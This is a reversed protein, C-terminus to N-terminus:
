LASSNLPRRTSTRKTMSDVLASTQRKSCANEASPPAVHSILQIATSVRDHTPHATTRQRPSAMPVVGPVAATTRSPVSPQEHLVDSTGEIAQVPLAPYCRKATVNGVEPVSCAYGCVSLFHQQGARTDADLMSIPKADAVWALRKEVAAAATQLDTQQSCAEFLPAAAVFLICLVVSAKMDQKLDLYGAQENSYDLTV